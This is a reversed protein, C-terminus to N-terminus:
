GKSLALLSAKSSNEEDRPIYVPIDERLKFAKLEKRKIMTAAHLSARPIAISLSLSFPHMVSNESFDVYTYNRFELGLRFFKSQFIHLCIDLWYLPSSIFLEIIM